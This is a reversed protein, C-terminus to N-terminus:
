ILGALYMVLACAFVAAAGVLDGVHDLRADRDYTGGRVQARKNAAEREVYYVLGVLAGLLGGEVPYPALTWALGVAPTAMLVLPWSREGWWLLFLFGALIAAAAWWSPGAWAILVGAVVLIWAVLAHGGWSGALGDRHVSGFYGRLWTV